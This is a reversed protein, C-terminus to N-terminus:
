GPNMPAVNADPASGQSRCDATSTTDSSSARSGHFTTLLQFTAPVSRGSAESGLALGTATTEAPAALAYTTRNLRLTICTRSADCRPSAPAGTLDISRM